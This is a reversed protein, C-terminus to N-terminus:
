LYKSIIKTLTTSKKAQTRIDAMVKKDVKIFERKSLSYIAAKKAFERVGSAGYILLKDEELPFLNCLNYKFDLDARNKYEVREWGLGARKVDLVEVVNSYLSSSSVIEGLMGFFCYIRNTFKDLYVSPNARPFNLDPLSTWKESYLDFLECCCNNEGGIVLISKYYHLYEMTHYAHPNPMAEMKKLENTKPFYVYFVSTQNKDVDVGGTIYVRDKIFVSRCGALFTSHGHLAKDFSIKKKQMSCTKKDYLLIENSSSVAKAYDYECEDDTEHANPNTTVHQTKVNSNMASSLADSNNSKHQKTKDDKSPRYYKNVLDMTLYGFYKQLTENNLNVEDPSKVAVAPKTSVPTLSQNGFDESHKGSKGKHKGSRATKPRDEVRQLSSQKSHHASQNPCTQLAVGNDDNSMNLINGIKQKNNLTYKFNTHEIDDYQGTKAVVDYVTNKITKIQNSYKTVKDVIDKYYDEKLSKYNPKQQPKAKLADVGSAIAAIKDDLDKKYAEICQRISDLQVQIDNNINTTSALLDYTLLFTTNTTDQNGSSPTNSNTENHSSENVFACNNTILESDQNLLPQHPEIHFFKKQESFFDFIRQKISHENNYFTDMSSASSEYFKDIENLKEEKLVQLTNIIDTFEREVRQKYDNKSKEINQFELETQLTTDLRDFHENIIAKDFQYYKYKNILTHDKHSTLTCKPCTSVFCDVCYCSDESIPDTCTIPVNKINIKIHRYLDFPSSSSKADFSANQKHKKQSHKANASPRKM